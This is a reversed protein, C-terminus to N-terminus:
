EAVFIIIFTDLSSPTRLLELFVEVPPNYWVDVGVPQRLLLYCSKLRDVRKQLMLTKLPVQPTFYRKYTAMISVLAATISVSFYDFLFSPKHIERM